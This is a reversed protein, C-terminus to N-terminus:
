NSIGHLCQNSNALQWLKFDPKYARIIIDIERQSFEEQWKPQGTEHLKPLEIPLGFRPGIEAWVLGLKHIPILLDAVVTNRHVLFHYQSRLMNPVIKRKRTRSLEQLININILDHITSYSRFIKIMRRPQAADPPWLDPSTIWRFTSLLRDAPHRVVAIKYFVKGIAKYRKKAAGACTPISWHGAPLAAQISGSANKPISILFLGEYRNSALKKRTYFPNAVAPTVEDKRQM